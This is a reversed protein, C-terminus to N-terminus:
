AASRVPSSAVMTETDSATGLIAPKPSEAEVSTNRSYVPASTQDPSGDQVTPLKTSFIASIFSEHPLAVDNVSAVTNRSSSRSTHRSWDALLEGSSLHLSGDSPKQGHRKATQESLFRLATGGNPSEPSVPASETSGIHDSLTRAPYKAWDDESVSVSYRKDPEIDIRLQPQILPLTSTALNNGHHDFGSPQREVVSPVPSDESAESAEQLAVPDNAPKDNSGAPEGEESTEAPVNTCISGM